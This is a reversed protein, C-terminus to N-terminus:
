DDEMFSQMEKRVKLSHPIQRAFAIVQQRAAPPLNTLRKKLMQLTNNDPETYTSTINPQQLTGAMLALDQPSVVTFFNEYIAPLFTVLLDMEPLRLAEIQAQLASKEALLRLSEQRLSEMTVDHDLVARQREAQAAEDRYHFTSEILPCIVETLTTEDTRDIAKGALTQGRQEIPHWRLVQVKESYSLLIKIADHLQSLAVPDYILQIDTQEFDVEELREKLKPLLCVVPESSWEEGEIPEIQWGTSHHRFFAVKGSIALIIISSQM